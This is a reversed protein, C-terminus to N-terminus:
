YLNRAVSSVPINSFNRIVYNPSFDLTLRIASTLSLSRFDFRIESRRRSVIAIKNLNSPWLNKCSTADYHDPFSRLILFLCSIEEFDCRCSTGFGLSLNTGESEPMSCRLNGWMHLDQELMSGAAMELPSMCKMQEPISKPNVSKCKSVNNSKIHRWRFYKSIFANTENKLKISRIQRKYIETESEYAPHTHGTM